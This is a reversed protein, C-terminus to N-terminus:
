LSNLVRAAAAVATDIDGADVDLHTLMRMRTSSTGSCLVGEDALRARFDVAAEADLEFFVINTEVAAPDLTVHPLQALGEALRRANAHDDPLRDVNHELAHLAAAALVGSQRMAGGLQRRFIRVRDITEAPGTVVSGVPAGLGKSFCFSVTDAEAAITAADTELAAAANFIRAGDLHVAAGAERAVAGLSRMEDLTIAAGGCRNQTNEVCVLATRPAGPPRVLSRVEGSDMSGQEDNRAIRLNIGGLASAGTAEHHLIHSESGVIAEDGRGCHALLASLNAMTGSPVFVAAEKGVREAAAAELAKVTPDDGLVDDGVEAHAMAQRMAESPRTVTDSRLDVIPATM